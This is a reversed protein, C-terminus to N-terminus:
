ARWESSLARLIAGLLRTLEGIQLTGPQTVRVDGCVQLVASDQAQASVVFVPIRALDPDASIRRLVEYGDVDPMVLDLLLLDPKERAMVELAETGSFAELLAGTPFSAGLMREFLRVMDPDDDAVLVRRVPADLRELAAVLEDRSVPKSLMERAGLVAAARRASPLPCRIAPINVSALLDADSTSDALVAVPKLEDILGLAEVESAAGVVNYGDLHRQMFRPLAPDDSVMVVIPGEAGDHAANRSANLPPMGAVVESAVALPASGDGHPGYPLTFWITTGQQYVSEVGMRGHHLEIFRKSIPLGLGSGSHWVWPSEGTDDQPRFEDFIRPLEQPPIGQGTDTVRVLVEGGAQAVGASVTIGGQKTFRAANVLLNLLVQRVRLRDLYVLPLNDDLHVQLDLGKASVYDHVMGTAERVLAALDVEERALAIRGADIRALDIVDDVLALLHQASTYVANLDRRYAGPLVANGYSEPSTMMMETFGVVLNLPTRLEHSITTAFESKFREAESATRWAVLLAANARQLRYYAQDLDKLVRALQGRNRQAEDTMERAQEYSSLSWYVVTLLSDSAAWGLLTTFGGGALVLLAEDSPFVVPLGAHRGTWLAALTLAEMAVGAPWGLTIVGALPLLAYLYAIRPEHFLAVSLSITLFLGALWVVQSLLFRRTVLWWALASTVLMIPSILWIMWGIGGPWAITATFHWLLYVIGVSLILKTSTQQSLEKVSSAFEPSTKVSLRLPQWM